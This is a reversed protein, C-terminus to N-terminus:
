GPALLLLGFTLRLLRLTLLRPRGFPLLLLLGGLALLRLLRATGLPLLLLGLALLFPCGM